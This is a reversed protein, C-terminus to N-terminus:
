LVSAADHCVVARHRSHLPSRARPRPGPDGRGKRAGSGPLRRVMLFPDGLQPFIAGSGCWLPRHPLPQQGPNNPTEAERFHKPASGPEGLTFAIGGSEMHGLVLFVPDRRKKALGLVERALGQTKRFEASVFTVGILGWLAQQFRPTDGLKKSFGRAQDYICEVEKVAWGKTTKLVHGLLLLLDLERRLRVRGEPLAQLLEQGREIHRRAESYASRDLANRAAQELYSVARFPRAGARFAHRARRGPHARAERWLGAM